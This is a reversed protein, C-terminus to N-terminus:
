KLYQSWVQSAYQLKYRIYTIFLKNFIEKDMYKFTTRIAVLTGGLGNEQRPTRATPQSSHRGRLGKVCLGMYSVCM